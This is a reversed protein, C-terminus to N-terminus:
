LQSGFPHPTTLLSPFHGPQSQLLWLMHHPNLLWKKAASSCKHSTLLLGFSLSPHPILAERQSVILSTLTGSSRSHLVLLFFSSTLTHPVTLPRECRHLVKRDHVHKLGLCLQVFWDLVAEEPLMQGQRKQLMCHLDGPRSSPFGIPPPLPSRLLYSAPQQEAPM